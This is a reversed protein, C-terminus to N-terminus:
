HSRGVKPGITSHRGREDLSRTQNAAQDPGGEHQNDHDEDGVRQDAVLPEELMSPLRPAMGVDLALEVLVPAVVAREPIARPTQAFWIRRRDFVQRPSAEAHDFWALQEEDDLIGFPLRRRGGRRRGGPASVPRKVVAAM